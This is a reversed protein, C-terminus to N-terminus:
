RGASVGAKKGLAQEVQDLVAGPAHLWDKALVQMVQWGFADLIRPRSVYRELVNHRHGDQAAGDVLIGLAYHGQGSARVALDCRFRSQGVQEDVAHGRARLAQAIQATVDDTRAQRAVHGRALPNMGELVRRATDEDGRSLCEAYRLFNKLAAAGENHDNTIAEHRITSVVAMHHKARSFIVNLRKEGGRQNIPGFNMLMRGEPNPGYCISLIIIDREDGQVNELNKIFLGCFQDDEERVYEAELRAAFDADVAGLANLEEEIEGQQAESFAVIGLSRGTERQLLERVLQAIHRAEGDNIRNEYVADAVRHFSIARSLLADVQAKVSEDTPSRSQVVIEGREPAPLSRDPITYLNGAYFAANSFGILSEYRSRYHWALLTAPLNRGGQNLLSDADLVVAIREGEEGNEADDGEVTVTDEEADRGSSFFSTPPLQMEDGVVIIQPARYLAPVAEEVPIQSAEDFIVVDFLDATLPLTDSVSLPSMLWIPKMDRVVRGTDGSALERIAKYRMTKGFEHELERRGANYSKKFVKGDADLQSAPLASKQVHDRFRQRVAAALTRANRELLKREGEGLRQAHRALTAGDFRPLWRETRYVRELGERAVAYEIAEPPLPLTRLAAAVAPDADALEQLPQLVSPLADAQDRLTRALADLADLPQAGADHLLDHWLADLTDVRPAAAVLQEVSRRAADTRLHVQFAARLGAGGDIGRMAQLQQAFADADTCGYDAEIRAAQQDLATRAAQEARLDELLQSFQPRVAHAAFDYRRKLEGSLRWWSPQLWRLLSGQQARAQALAAETDGPSLKDRWHATRQLQADLAQQLTRKDNLAIGLALSSPHAADLLALQGRAALSAVSRADAVVALADRWLVGAEALPPWADVLADRCPASLDIARESREVLRALPKEQALLSPALQAFVHQAFSPAGLSETVALHLRSVLEAHRRWAAFAPLAEAQVPTLSPDSAKLAVLRSLLERLTVAIHEPVDHMAADFRELARLDLDMADLVQTRETSEQALTGPAELWLEYTKRLNQVFAKKDGQSDHIMCCLEDLGQQRLRHFVVDIAARKECVFLVRQGRGVYDAILNTITQSKGTGPPGQIIYSTGTRALAVAATQTADAQVVPWQDALPLAPPTEADVRRPQLSFVRDFAESALDSEALGSYDRVLSMKRHNFNGLTVATLDIDWQYPNGGSDRLAFTKRETDDAATAAMQPARPQPAGGVAERVPLPVPRVRAHFLQLGRPRFDDQAYSFDQSAVPVASPSRVRTRRKFQELRQRARQHMVAIEPQKVLRLQVGPESQAIQASLQAHFQELSTERLDVTEPLAIGYLQRLHHRLTPNVQAESASAELLYQDRVGKKRTLEVPLMLLPSAIREAREAEGEKLNHWRLFAVVLSLQSFGYEARDRRAEQLIRDLAGPLYPQDEFRLWRALPVPDCSAIDAAFRGDWVCLQDTRISNLDVVLPVSAVTLNVHAQTPKFYLLRNRRSLDFLRDRLHLQIAQRRQGAGDRAPAIRDLGLDVPQDRYTELRRIVSPLDRAREHRDLATMEFIVAAVVPHLRRNLEFLNGRHTAFRTLDDSDTFDLGCSLSALVQGLCLIDGLADHHGLRLEWATYGPLYVPRTPVTDPGADAMVALNELAVGAEADVTLRTEGVVRLVSAAPQELPAIAEPHRRPATGDPQALALAPEAPADTVRYAFASGLAAVNGLEHLASVERLLPLVLKLVDDTQLGGHTEATALLQLLPAPALTM